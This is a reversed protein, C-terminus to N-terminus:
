RMPMMAGPAPPGARVQVEIRLPGAHAFTLTAPFRAGPQLGSKLGELMFHYGGPELKLMGGPAIPAGGPVADMSMMGHTMTSRHLTMRAAIPTAAGVLRDADHGLNAVSLYVVGTPLGVPVPRSWAGTVRLAAAAAFATPSAACFAAATVAFLAFRM